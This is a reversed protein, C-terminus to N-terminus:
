VTRTDLVCTAKKIAEPTPKADLEKAHLVARAMPLTTAQPSVQKRLWRSSVWQIAVSVAVALYPIIIDLQLGIFAVNEPTLKLAGLLVALHLVSTIVKELRVPEKEKSPLM